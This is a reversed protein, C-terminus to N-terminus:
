RNQSRRLTLLPLRLESVRDGVSKFDGFNGVEMRDIRSAIRDRDRKDRLGAFWDTFAETTRIEVMCDHLM